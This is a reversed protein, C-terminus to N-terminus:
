PLGAANALADPTAAVTHAGLAQGMTAAAAEVATRAAPIAGAMAYFHHIMGAHCTYRAGVGARRLAQAYAEGEDRLPDFEATHIHAPPLRSFDAARLPSLRPDGLDIETACAVPGCCHQLMWDITAQNLFFGEALQRRSPTAPRMDMVPCFLVQLAIRPGHDARAMQCIVAALAAGSSDGGVAIRAPDLAHERAHDAVWRTAAFCDDLAAPFRHEPARRYDIAIVACGSAASLMRCMGDHTELDGFVCGGGHFFVLAPVIGPRARYLRYPLPGDPGPLFGNAVSEVAVHKIDVSRALRRYGERMQQPSISAVDVMGGAAFIDLLRKASPDLPM